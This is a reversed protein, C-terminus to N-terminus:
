TEFSNGVIDFAQISIDNTGGSLNLTHTRQYGSSTIGTFTGTQGNIQLTSLHEDM